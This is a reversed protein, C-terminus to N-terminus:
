RHIIEEVNEFFKGDSASHAYNSNLKYIRIFSGNEISESRPCYEVLIVINLLEAIKSALEFQEESFWRDDRPGMLFMEALRLHVMNEGAMNEDQYEGWNSFFQMLEIAIRDTKLRVIDAAANESVKLTKNYCDFFENLKRFIIIGRDNVLTNVKYNPPSADLYLDNLSNIRYNDRLEEILETKIKFLSFELRSVDYANNLQNIVKENSAWIPQALLLLLLSFMYKQM